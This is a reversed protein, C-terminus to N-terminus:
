GGDKVASIVLPATEKVVDTRLKRAPSRPVPDFPDNEEFEPGALGIGPPGPDTAHRDAEGAIRPVIQDRRRAPGVQPNRLSQTEGPDATLAGVALGVDAPQLKEGQSRDREGAAQLAPIKSSPLRHLVHRHAVAVEGSPVWVRRPNGSSITPGASGEPIGWPPRIRAV